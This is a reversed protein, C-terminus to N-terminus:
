QLRPFSFPFDTYWPSLSLAGPRAGLRCRPPLLPMECAADSYSRLLLFRLLGFGAGGCGPIARVKLCQSRILEFLTWCLARMPEIKRGTLIASTQPWDGQPGGLTIRGTASWEHRVSDPAKDDEM